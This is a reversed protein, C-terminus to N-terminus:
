SRACSDGGCNGIVDSIGFVFFDAFGFGSGRTLDEMQGLEVIEPTQYPRKPQEISM